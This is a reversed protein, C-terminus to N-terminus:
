PIIPLLLYSQHEPTHHVTHQTERMNDLHCFVQRFGESGEWPADQGKIVLQMKHGALYINSTERLEMAYECVMGPKIPISRTHPHFPRYTKSKSEDLERHSAKLWGMTVLRRVGDKDIDFIEAMWNADETSLSAHFYLTVPGTIEMDQTFTATTYKVSPAKLGPKLGPINTFSDPTENSASATEALMENERLYYKTWKTRALPWESEYRWENTGQILIKIPPEDMIGTDIGKLWHDYWRLIIDRDECWPREVSKGSEPMGSMLKKPADIGLYASFSGPLHIGWSNWHSVLYVPVKIKDFKTYASREWYYPGDNPYIVFDYLNVNKEPLSLYIYLIPRSMVDMNNKADEVMKKLEAEPVDLPEITHAPVHTWWQFSMGYDLIGGHYAWQRYIDTAASYAFIAKLHPPNQAAVLYQIMAFYSMGLMGVNGNCWPQKAIWEVLDYGDEQEKKSFFRYGGESLGTGRTDAIVHVYGRSVFYDTDGAEIGGNGMKADVPFQPVPLKQVDKGYCSYSLLAPFRGEADPYYIDAALRTGDRMVIYIDKEGKVKYKPQSLLEHWDTSM